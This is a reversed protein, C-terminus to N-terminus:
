PVTGWIMNRLPVVSEYVRYRYNRWNNVAEDGTINAVSGGSDTTGDLNTMVFPNNLTGTSGSWTPVAATVPTPTGSTTAREYQRSRVLVAFRVALVRTWDVPAVNTWETSVIEGNGDADVGYQAKLNAVDSAVEVASASEEAMRNYRTLSGSVPNVRWVSEVPLPGLNYVRGTSFTTGTGGAPNMTGGAAKHELTNLEGPPFGTVEVLACAMGLGSLGTVLMRDGIRFGERSKLTKTDAASGTLPQSSVFFASNGYLARIEDPGGSAGQTITVPQLNFQFVAPSRASNYANVACGMVDNGAVGFGYGGLRLDRDITYLGLTGSIQADNGSSTTRKRTEWISLVQLIILVCVIGIVLGVLM